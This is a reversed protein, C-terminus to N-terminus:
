KEKTLKRNQSMNIYELYLKLQLHIDSVCKLLIFKDIVWRM